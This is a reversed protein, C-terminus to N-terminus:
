TAPALLGHAELVELFADVDRGAQDSDVEYEEVVAEVLDQRSAPQQLRRWIVSGSHNVSLYTSSRLDLVVVEGDIERWTLDGSRVRLV